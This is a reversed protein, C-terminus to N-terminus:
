VGAKALRQAAFAQPCSIASGARRRRAGELLTGAKTSYVRANSPKLSFASQSRSVKRLGNGCIMKFCEEEEAFLDAISDM